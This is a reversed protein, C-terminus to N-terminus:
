LVAYRFNLLTFSQLCLRACITHFDLAGSAIWPNGECFRKLSVCLSCDWRKHSTISLENKLWKNTHRILITQNLVLRMLASFAYITLLFVCNCYKCWKLSHISQLMLLTMFSFKDYSPLVQFLQLLLLGVETLTWM